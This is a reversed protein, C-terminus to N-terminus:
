CVTQHVFDQRQIADLALVIALKMPLIMFLSSGSTPQHVTTASLFTRLTTQFAETNSNHGAVGLMPQIKGCWNLITDLALVANVEM